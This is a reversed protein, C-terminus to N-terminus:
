LDEFCLQVKHLIHITEMQDSACGVIVGNPLILAITAMM